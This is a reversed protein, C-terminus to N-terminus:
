KRWCLPYLILTNLLMYKKIDQTELDRDPTSTFELLQDFSLILEEISIYSSKYVSVKNKRLFRDCERMQKNFIRKDRTMEATTPIINDYAM